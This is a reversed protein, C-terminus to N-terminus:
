NNYFNHIKILESRVRKFFTKTLGNIQLCHGTSMSLRKELLLVSTKKLIEGKMESRMKNYTVSSAQDIM